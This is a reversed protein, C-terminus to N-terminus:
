IFYGPLPEEEGPKVREGSEKEDSLFGLVNLDKFWDPNQISRTIFAGIISEDKIVAQAFIEPWLAIVHLNGNKLTGILMGFKLKKDSTTALIIFLAKDSLDDGSSSTISRMNRIFHYHEVKKVQDLLDELFKKKLVLNEEFFEHIDYFILTWDKQPDNPDKGALLVTWVKLFIIPKEVAPPNHSPNVTIFAEKLLDIIGYSFYQDIEKWLEEAKEM